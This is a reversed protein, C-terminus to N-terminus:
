SYIYFGKENTLYKLIFFKIITKKSKLYLIDNLPTNKIEKIYNQYYLEKLRKDKVVRYAFEILRFDYYRKIIKYHTLNNDKYYQLIESYNRIVEIDLPKEKSICISGERLRYNYLHNPIEVMNIKEKEIKKSLDFMYLTDENTRGERFFIGEVVDKRFLKSTVTFNIECTLCLETFHDYNIIREGQPIWSKSFESITNDIYKNLMCSAIGCNPNRQLSSILLSYMDNELYDDSDIFSIYDGTAVRLGANRASSLGGNKKHIVIIRSDRKAWEDCLIPCNDPSGDDVLIIELNKYSQTIISTLCEDLYEEVKYIPIIISILSTNKNKM